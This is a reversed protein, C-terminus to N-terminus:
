KNYPEDNEVCVIVESKHHKLHGSQSQVNGLVGNEKYAIAVNMHM